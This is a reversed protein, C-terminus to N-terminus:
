GIACCFGGGSVEKAYTSCREHAMALPIFSFSEHLNDKLGEAPSRYRSTPVRRTGGGKSRRSQVRLVLGYVVVTIPRLMDVSRRVFSGHRWLIM